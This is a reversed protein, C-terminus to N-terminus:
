EWDIAQGCECHHNLTELVRGVEKGCVPCRYILWGDSGDEIPKKAIQKGISKMAIKMFKQFAGRHNEIEYAAFMLAEELPMESISELNRILEYNKGTAGDKVEILRDGDTLSIIEYESEFDEKYKEVLEMDYDSDMDYSFTNPFKEEFEDFTMNIIYKKM